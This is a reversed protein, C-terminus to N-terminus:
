RAERLVSWGLGRPDLARWGGGELEVVLRGAADVRCFRIRGLEWREQRAGLIEVVDPEASAERWEYDPQQRVRVGAGSGLRFVTEWAWDERAPVALWTLGGDHTRYHQEDEGDFRGGLLEGETESSFAFAAGYDLVVDSGPEVVTRLEARPPYLGLRGRRIGGGARYLLLTGTEGLHMAEISGGPWVHIRHWTSGADTSACLIGDITADVARGHVLGAAFPLKGRPYRMGCALWVSDRRVLEAIEVDYEAADEFVVRRFAGGSWRYARRPSWVVLEDPGAIEVSRGPELDEPLDAVRRWTRGFDVSRCLASETLGWVVDDPGLDFADIEWRAGDAAQRLSELVSEGGSKVRLLTSRGDHLLVESGDISLGGLHARAGRDLASRSRWRSTLDPGLLSVFGRADVVALGQPHLEFDLVREGGVTLRRWEPRHLDLACYVGEQRVVLGDGFLRVKRVAESPGPPMPLVAHSGDPFSATVFADNPRALAEASSISDIPTAVREWSAGGDLTVFIRNHNGGLVGRDRSEFFVGSPRIADTFPTALEVWGSALDESFLLEGTSGAVWVAGSISAARYPRMPSPLRQFAWTDGGDETRLLGNEGLFTGPVIGVERTLFCVDYLDDGGATGTPSEKGVPLDVGRWSEGGDRSVYLRGGNRGTWYSGDPAVHIPAISVGALEPRDDGRLPLPHSAQVIALLAIASM